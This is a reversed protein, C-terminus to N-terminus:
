HWDSLHRISGAAQTKTIYQKDATIYIGKEVIALSHYAADYFTVNYRQVLDLCRQQWPDSWKPEDLGFSTLAELLNSAQKPFNRSLTNGVEYFWLSPVKLILKGEISLDRLRLAKEQDDEDNSPLVWKLIVSADPVIIETM